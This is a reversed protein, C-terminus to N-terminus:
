KPGRGGAPGTPMPRPEVPRAQPAAGGAARAQDACRDLLERIRRLLVAPTFPKPQVATRGLADDAELRHDNYGSVYLVPLTPRERRIREVLEVGGVIPMVVDTILLDLM